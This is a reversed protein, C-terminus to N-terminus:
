LRRYLAGHLGSCDARPVVWHRARPLTATPLRGTVAASYALWRRSGPWWSRPQRPPQDGRGTAHLPVPLDTVIKDIPNPSRDLM